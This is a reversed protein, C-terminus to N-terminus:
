GRDAEERTAKEIQLVRVHSLGVTLGIERATLGVERAALIAVAFNAEAQQRAKTARTLATHQKARDHPSPAADNGPPATPNNM